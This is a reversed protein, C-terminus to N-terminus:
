ADVIGRDTISYSGGILFLQTGDSNGCLLPRSKKKFKHVYLSREGDIIANYAITDLEGLTYLARPNKPFDIAIVEMADHGHFAEFRAVADREAATQLNPNKKVKKTKRRTTKKGPRSAPRRKAMPKSRRRTAKRKVKRKKNKKSPKTKRAM